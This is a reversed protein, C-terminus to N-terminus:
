LKKFNVQRGFGNGGYGGGFQPAAIACVIMAFLVIFLKM